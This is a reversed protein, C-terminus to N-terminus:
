AGPEEADGTEGIEEETWGRQQASMTAKSSESPPRAKLEFRNGRVQVPSGFQEFMRRANDTDPILRGREVHADKKGIMWVVQYYNTKGAGGMKKGPRSKSPSFSRSRSRSRQTTQRHAQAM